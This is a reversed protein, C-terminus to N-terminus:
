RGPSSAFREWLERAVYAFEDGTVDGGVLSVLKEFYAAAQSRRAIGEGAHTVREEFCHSQQTALAIVEDPLRALRAVNIGYSRPSCGDSLRYLFTVEESSSAKGGLDPQTSRGGDVLCDMHCLRVRPDMTWDEILSHYHTAFLTRCHVRKVLHDVVAHAIATGDFTATGRGLEDLIGLSDATACRLMTATEALEVFFTSQGALIKDSAGVRTFIRDVPTMTCADAPVKCGLQALITILCTQRLLTSKGGMNPGSLLMLKPAFCLQGAARHAGGLTTSNPIYDAGGRAAMTAELMPHRGGRIDLLASGARRSITPWVYSPAASVLALSMLADLQATCAVADSWVNRSADFKEFIRRLTDNQALGVRAEAEDLRALLREIEATRYRRHTKKQSKTSWDRPVRACSAMPVEIQYRDKNSGFYKLDSIGTEKKMQRLHEELEKELAAVEEKAADFEQDVGPRPKIIGDKKAQKEDFLERFLKLLVQMQQAPFRELVISALLASADAGSRMAQNAKLVVEFGNLVDALTRIKAANYVSSEYMVARDDPHDRPGRKKLGNSHVRLLLRELDPVSRLLARAEDAGSACPGLLLEVASRRAAIDRPRFLPRCLWERLLRRGFPTKCRNVFAWLSGKESHDFNNVLVELNNLATADITMTSPLTSEDDDASERQVATALAASPADDDTPVYALVRGLSLIEFDILSRRLQWLAGGLASMLLATAGGQHMGALVAQLVPPVAGEPYYQGRSLMEVAEAAAPMEAGRLMELKARPALSKIAGVTEASHAGHQLAVESPAYKSMMTRLRSRQVDDQFQALTVTGIVTDVCCVGYEPVLQEEVDEGAAAVASASEKICYLVSSSSSGADAGLLATDDLHCYTRTGLSMMSCMERRVVKDKTGGKKDNREKLGEPTETQEVRAVRYGKAVLASAFKGYSIEPFGSHAKGGKMYILDLAGMGVDADMHFLEYFKGVKFFLVTDANDAKFSWWQAMAPTAEKLFSQPVHLTRPNYEPHDPARMNKDKRDRTLWPWFNHEHSGQGVVGEPLVIAPKDTSTPSASDPYSQEAGGKSTSTTAACKDFLDSMSTSSKPTKPTVLGAGSKASSPAARKPPNTKAGAPPLRKRSSARKKRDDSEESIFSDEGSGEGDSGGEDSYDDSEEGASEDTDEGDWVEEEDKVVPLKKKTASAGEEDEDDDLVMRGRKAVVVAPKKGKTLGEDEGGDGSGEGCDNAASEQSNAFPGPTFSGAFPSDVDASSTGGSSRQVSSEEKKKMETLSPTKLAGVAADKTAGPSPKAFFSFLNSQGKAPALPKPGM